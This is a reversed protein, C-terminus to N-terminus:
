SMKDLGYSDNRNYYWYYVFFMKIFKSISPLSMREYHWKAQM